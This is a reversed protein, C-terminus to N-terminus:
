YYLDSIIGALIILIIVSSICCCIISITFFLWFIIGTWAGIIVYSVVFPEVGFHMIIWYIVPGVFPIFGLLSCLMAIIGYLAVALGASVGLSLGIIIAIIAIILLLLDRM